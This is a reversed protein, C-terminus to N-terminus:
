LNAVLSFWRAKWVTSSTQMCLGLYSSDTLYGTRNMICFSHKLRKWLKGDMKLMFNIFYSANLYRFPWRWLQLLNRKYKGPHLILRYKQYIQSNNEEMGQVSCSWSSLGCKGGKSSLSLTVITHTTHWACSLNKSCKKCLLQPAEKWYTSFAPFCKHISLSRQVVLYNPIHPPKPKPFIRWYSRLLCM